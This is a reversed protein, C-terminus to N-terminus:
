NSYIIYALQDYGAGLFDGAVFMGSTPSVNSLNTVVDYYGPFKLLNPSFRHVEVQGGGIYNIYNISEKNDVRSKSAVFTGGSPDTSRMATAIHAMWSNFGQADVHVEACTSGTNNM